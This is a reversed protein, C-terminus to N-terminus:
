ALLSLRKGWTFESNQPAEEMLPPISQGNKLLRSVDTAAAVENIATLSEKVLATAYSYPELWVENFGSTLGWEKAGGLQEGAELLKQGIPQPVAILIHRPGYGREYTFTKLAAGHITNRLEYLLTLFSKFTKKLSLEHLEQAGSQALAAIFEKKYFYALWERTNLCYARHAVRAQADIAGTLVLTLYDFHYMIQDGTNNNQPMYFQVGIADRAQLARVARILVAEGLEQIDDGRTKGAAVCASFYRWMNPLHYRALIWYFMGQDFSAKFKPGARYAYINRSRLFLGVLQSAELPTRPNTESVVTQSRNNLLLPSETVLIDGKVSRHAQALVLVNLMVEIAEKGQNNPGVLRAAIIPWQRKNWVLTSMLLTDRHMLRVPIFDDKPGPEGVVIHPFDGPSTEFVELEPLNGLERLLEIAAKGEESLNTLSQSHFTIRLPREGKGRM